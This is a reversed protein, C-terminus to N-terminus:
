ILVKHPCTLPIRVLRSSQLQWEKVTILDCVGVRTINKAEMVALHAAVSWHSAMKWSCVLGLEM